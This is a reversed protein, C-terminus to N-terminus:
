TYYCLDKSFAISFTLCIIVILIEVINEIWIRVRSKEKKAKTM